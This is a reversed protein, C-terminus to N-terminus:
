IFFDSGPADAVVYKKKSKSITGWAVYEKNLKRLMYDIDQEDEAVIVPRGCHALTYCTMEKKLEKPCQKFINQVINTSYVM